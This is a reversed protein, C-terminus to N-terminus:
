IYNTSCSQGIEYVFAPCSAIALGQLWTLILFLTIEQFQPKNVQFM